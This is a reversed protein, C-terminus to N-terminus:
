HRVYTCIDYLSNNIREISLNKCAYNFLLNKESIRLILKLLVQMPFVM